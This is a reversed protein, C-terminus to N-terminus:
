IIPPHLYLFGRENFFKHIAFALAHGVRFLAGFTNTRFRLHAIERLYDLSPRNKLQLPFKEGDCEGLVEITDAKLEVRQGKGLSAIVSGTAAIAAGNSIRGMIAPDTTLDIVVQLNAVCSGDNLAIFQNNRFSRVWGKVTTSYDTAENALIAKIKTRSM